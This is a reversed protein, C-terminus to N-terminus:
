HVFEAEIAVGVQLKPHTFKQKNVEPLWKHLQRYSMNKEKLENSPMLPEGPSNLSSSTVYSFRFFPQLIFQPTPSAVSPNPFSGHRLCLSSPQLILQSTPSTVSIKSFSCLEYSLSLLSTALFVKATYPSLAIPSLMALFKNERKLSSLKSMLSMEREPLGEPNSSSREFM